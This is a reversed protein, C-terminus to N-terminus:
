RRPRPPIATVTEILTDLQAKIRDTKSDLPDILEGLARTSARMAGRRVPTM